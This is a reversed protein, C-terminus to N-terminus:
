LGMWYRSLLDSFFLAKQQEKGAIREANSILSEGHIEELLRVPSVSNFKTLELAKAFRELSITISKQRSVDARLLAGLAEREEATPSILTVSGGWRGLSQYKQAMAKFLRVFGKGSTFYAKARDLEDSHLVVRGKWPKSVM